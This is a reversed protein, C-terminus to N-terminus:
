PYLLVQVMSLQKTLATKEKDRKPQIPFDWGNAMSKYLVNGSLKCTM